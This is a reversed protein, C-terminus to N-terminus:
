ARPARIAAVDKDESLTQILGHRDPLALTTQAAHPQRGRGLDVWLLTLTHPDAVLQYLSRARLRTGGHALGCIEVVPWSELASWPTPCMDRPKVQAFCLRVQFMQLALHCLDDDTFSLADLKVSRVMGRLRM